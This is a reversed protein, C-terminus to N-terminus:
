HVTEDSVWDGELTCARLRELDHPQPLVRNIYDQYEAASLLIATPAYTKGAFHGIQRNFKPEPARLRPQGTAIQQNLMDIIDSCEQYYRARSEENIRDLDIPVEEATTKM